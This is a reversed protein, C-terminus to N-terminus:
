CDDDYMLIWNFCVHMCCVFYIVFLVNQRILRTRYCNSQKSTSDNNGKKKFYINVVVGIIEQMHAIYTYM